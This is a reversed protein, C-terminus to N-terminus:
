LLQQSIRISVIKGGKGSRMAHYKVHIGENQQLNTNVAVAHFTITAKPQWDNTKGVWSKLDFVEITSQDKLHKIDFIGGSAGAVHKKIEHCGLLEYDWKGELFEEYLFLEIHRADLIQMTGDCTNLDCVPCRVLQLDALWIGPKVDKLVGCGNLQLMNELTEEKPFKPLGNLNETVFAISSDFLFSGIRMWDIHKEQQRFMYSHSGDFATAYLKTWKFGVQQPDPVQLDRLCAFKWISEHMLIRYFWRCTLALMLLSKGDLFKAIETWADEEFWSFISHPTLYTSRPTVCCSISKTRRIRKGM